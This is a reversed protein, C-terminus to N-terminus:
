EADVYDRGCRVGSDQQRDFKSNRQLHVSGSCDVAIRPFYLYGNRFSGPCDQEPCCGSFWDPNRVVNCLCNFYRYAQDNRSAIVGGNEELLGRITHSNAAKEKKAHAAKEGTYREIIKDYEGNKKLKALGENFMKMLEKNHGKKVAFGYDGVNTSKTAIKLGLGTKVGYALVASDEFCGASNGNKVDNYMNDSDDFTVVKFGYKDKVSNAYDAGSTGTKVAVKKGKLDRLSKIGGKPNVGMVIGSSYYPDSFDFKAKREDTISMGAIVGDAQGSSVSQVAANFGVPRIKIKFGEEKAIARILDMDIGVYKNDENAYVFPPFTVDTDIVYTKESAQATSSPQVMFGIMFLGLFACLMSVIKKM